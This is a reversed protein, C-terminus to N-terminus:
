SFWKINITLLPREMKRQRVRLKLTFHGRITISTGPYNSVLRDIKGGEQTSRIFHNHIIIITVTREGVNM